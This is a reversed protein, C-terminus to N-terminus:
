LLGRETLEGALSRVAEEPDGRWLRCDGRPPPTFVRAVRTPSGDLGFGAPDAPLDAAGLVTVRCRRAHMQGVLSPLRPVNLDKLVTLVAPLPV